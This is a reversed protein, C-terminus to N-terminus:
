DIHSGGNIDVEEGTLYSAGPSALFAVTYAVDEATGARKAPIGNEIEARKEPTLLGGTIDTAIFGPAVTNLTIGYEAMERAAAKTFGTVAAKAASYHSGGFVGGGRKGSVSSLNVVRGYKNEKMYPLAAQTLYFTGNVNVNFILDWEEKSIDLVRTPRTIGANNILIDIKGHDNVIEKMKENVQDQNTVDLLLGHASGKEQNIDEVADNLMNEDIDSIIVKAGRKVLQRSIERGIGRKSAAGTVLAVQNEFNM